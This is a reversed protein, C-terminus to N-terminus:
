RGIGETGNGERERQIRCAVSAMTERKISSAFVDVPNWGPTDEARPIGNGESCGQLLATALIM